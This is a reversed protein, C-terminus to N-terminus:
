AAVPGVLIARTALYRARKLVSAHAADAKRYGAAHEACRWRIPAREITGAPTRYPMLGNDCVCVHPKPKPTANM